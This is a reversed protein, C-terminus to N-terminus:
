RELIKDMRTLFFILIWLFPKKRDVIKEINQLMAIRMLDLIMGFPIEKPLFKLKNLQEADMNSKVLAEDYRYKLLESIKLEERAIPLTFDNEGLDVEDFDVVKTNPMPSLKEKLDKIQEQKLGMGILVLCVSRRPEREAWNILRQLYPFDENNPVSSGFNKPIWQFMLPTEKSLIKEANLM